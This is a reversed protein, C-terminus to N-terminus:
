PRQFQWIAGAAAPVVLNILWIVFAAVLVGGIAGDEPAIIALSVAERIGLEGLAASPVLANGLFILPIMHRDVVVGFAQFSLWFQSAFVVYRLSSLVLVESRLAWSTPPAAADALKFWQRLSQPIRPSWLLYLVTALALAIGFFRYGEAGIAAAGALFTVLLQSGSSTMFARSARERRESPAAAVRGALDGIRNPTLIAWAAGILVERFANPWSLEPNLRKWKAVEIGWNVPMLVTLLLLINWHPKPLNVTWVEHELAKWTVWSLALGSIGYAILRRNM